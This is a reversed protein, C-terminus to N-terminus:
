ARDIRAVYCGYKASHVHVYAIDANGFMRQIMTEMATGPVVDADRIMGRSDFGRLSLLRRRLQDPVEDVRDYQEEGERIYIAHTARYPSNAPQHEYNLLILTQGEEADTLSIRCPYSHPSDAVVRMARRELLDQDSMSFLGAFPEAPLGSIRFHM